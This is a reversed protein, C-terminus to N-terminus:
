LSLKLSLADKPIVATQRESETRNMVPMSSNHAVPSRHRVRVREEVSRAKISYSSIKAKNYQDSCYCLFCKLLLTEAIVGFCVAVVKFLNNPTPDTLTKMYQVSIPTLIIAAIILLYVLLNRWQCLQKWMSGEQLQYKATCASCQKRNENGSGQQIWTLLCQHHVALDTCDCFNLIPEQGKKETERCIFCEKETFAVPASQPDAATVKISVYDIDM